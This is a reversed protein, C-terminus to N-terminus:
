FYYNAQFKFLGNENYVNQFISLVKRPNFYSYTDISIYLLAFSVHMSVSTIRGDKYWSEKEHTNNYLQIGLLNWM